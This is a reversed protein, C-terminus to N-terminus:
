RLPSTSVSGNGAGEVVVTGSSSSPVTVGGWEIWSGPGLIVGGDTLSASSSSSFNGGTSNYSGRALSTNGGAFRGEFGGIFTGM